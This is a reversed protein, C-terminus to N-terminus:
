TNTVENEKRARARARAERRRRASESNAAIRCPECAEEQLRRHRQYGGETGCAPLNSRRRREGLLVFREEPLLGGWIGDPEQWQLAHELCRQQVPCAQCIQKAQPIVPSQPTAPHWLDVAHSACAADDQWDLRLTPRHQSTM